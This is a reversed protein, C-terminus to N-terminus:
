VIKLAQPFGPILRIFAADNTIRVPDTEIVCHIGHETVANGYEFKSFPFRSNKKWMIM